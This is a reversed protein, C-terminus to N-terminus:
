IEMQSSITEVRNLTVGTNGGEHKASRALRVAQMKDEIVLAKVPTGYTKYNLEYHISSTPKGCIEQRWNIPNESYGLADLFTHYLAECAEWRQEYNGKIVAMPSPHEFLKLFRTQEQATLKLWTWSNKIMVLYEKVALEKDKM